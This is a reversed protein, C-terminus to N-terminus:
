NEQADLEKADPDIVNKGKRISFYLQPSTVDGTKGVKAIEQGQQVIQGKKVLIQNNHAYATVYNDKHKIIILNGFRDSNNDAYLVKGDGASKVSANLQAEISIGENFGEKNNQFSKLVKGCIPWMFDKSGLPSPLKFYKDCSKEITHSPENTTNKPVDKTINEMVDQKDEKKTEEEISKQSHPKSESEDISKKENLMLEKEVYDFDKNITDSDSVLKYQKIDDSKVDSSYFGEISDQNKDIQIAVRVERNAVYPYNLGNVAAVVKPDVNYQQAILDLSEGPNLKVIKMIKGPKNYFFDSMNEIKAPASTTCSQLLIACSVLSIVRTINGIKLM